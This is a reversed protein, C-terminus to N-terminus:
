YSVRSRASKSGDSFIEVKSPEFWSYREAFRVTEGVLLLAPPQIGLAEQADGLTYQVAQLWFSPFGQWAVWDRAWRGTADSTFASASCVAFAVPSILWCIDPM